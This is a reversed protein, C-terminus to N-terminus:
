ETTTENMAKAMERAEKMEKKADAVVCSFGCLQKQLWESDLFRGLAPFNKRLQAKGEDNLALWRKLTYLIKEWATKKVEEDTASPDKQKNRISRINEKVLDVIEKANTGLNKIKAQFKAMLAKFKQGLSPEPDPKTVNLFHEETVVPSINLILEELAKRDEDTLDEASSDFFSIEPLKDPSFISREKATSAAKMLQTARAASISVLSGVSSSQSDPSRRPRHSNSASSRRPRLSPSVLSSSCYM